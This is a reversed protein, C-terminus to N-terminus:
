TGTTPTFWRLGFLDATKFDGSTEEFIFATEPLNNEAAVRQLKSDALKGKPVLVVAAYNGALARGTFADVQFLKYSSM